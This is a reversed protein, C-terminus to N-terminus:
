HAYYTVQSISNQIYQHSYSNLCKSVGKRLYEEYIQGYKSFNGPYIQLEDLTYTLWLPMASITKIEMIITDDDTLKREPDTNTLLLNKLSFRINSDFTIRLDNDNKGAWSDRSYAILVKPNLQKGTNKLYNIEKMIQTDCPMKDFLIYNTSERYTMDQRRKYTVGNYKKKIEMFVSTNDDKIGYSRLRLKEKYAPKELSTRILKYDDTDFYISTIESHPFMDPILRDQIRKMIEVYQAKTLIYKSEVREFIEQYDM